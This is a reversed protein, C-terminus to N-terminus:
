FIVWFVKLHLRKNSEVDMRRKKKKSKNLFFIEVCM